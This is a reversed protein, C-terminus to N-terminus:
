ALNPSGGMLISDNLISDADDMDRWAAPMAERVKLMPFLEAMDEILHSSARKRDRSSKSDALWTCLLGLAVPFFSVFALLVVLAVVLLSASAERDLASFGVGRKAALVKVTSVGKEFLLWAAAMFSTVPQAERQTDKLFEDVRHGSLVVESRPDFGFLRPWKHGSESILNACEIRGMADARVVSFPINFVNIKM